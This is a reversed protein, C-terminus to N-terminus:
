RPRRPRSRSGRVSSARAPGELAERYAKVAQLNTPRTLFSILLDADLDPLLRSRRAPEYLNGRLVHM